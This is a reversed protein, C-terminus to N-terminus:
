LCKQGKVSLSSLSLLPVLILFDCLRQRLKQHFYSFFFPFPPQMTLPHSFKTHTFVRVERKNDRMGLKFFYYKLLSSLYFRPHMESIVNKNVMEQINKSLLHHATDKFCMCTNLIDVLHCSLFNDSTKHKLFPGLNLVKKRRVSDHRIDLRASM